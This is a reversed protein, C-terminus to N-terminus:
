KKLQEMLATAEQRMAFPGTSKLAVELWQKALAERGREYALRAIYYATDPNVQGGSIAAQFAREAEDLRGLNSLVWGYTSAAEAVQPYRQVNNM